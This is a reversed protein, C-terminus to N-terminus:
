TLTVSRFYKPFAAILLNSSATQATERQGQKAAACRWHGGAHMWGTKSCGPVHSPGSPVEGGNRTTFDWNPEMRQVRLGPAAALGLSCAHSHERSGKAAM